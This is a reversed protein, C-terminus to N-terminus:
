AGNTHDHRLCVLALAALGFAILMPIRMTYVEMVNLRNVKYLLVNRWSFFNGTSQLAEIIMSGVELGTAPFSHLQQDAEAM